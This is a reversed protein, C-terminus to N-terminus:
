HALNPRIVRSHLLLVGEAVAGDKDIVHAHLSYRFTARGVVLKLLRLHDLVRM